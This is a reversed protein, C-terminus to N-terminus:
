EAAGDGVSSPSLRWVMVLQDTGSPKILPSAAVVFGSREYARIADVNRASVGLVIEAIQRHARLWAATARLVEGAVGRGRWQREGVLIGMVAARHSQDIPEYKINGIHDGTARDFIGLFLVDSRGSRDLLYQRLDSLATTTTASEIFAGVAPDQLWGLYRETVDNETLERLQFRETEIQVAM